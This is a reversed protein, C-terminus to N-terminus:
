RRVLRVRRQAARGHHSRFVGREYVHVGIQRRSIREALFRPAILALHGDRSIMPNDRDTRSQSVKWGPHTHLDAVPHLRDRKCLKWLASFGHRGFDIAGTLCTPDLDDYLAFSCVRRSGVPALLFAGSERRGEGRAAVDGLMTKWLARPVVIRDRPWLSAPM